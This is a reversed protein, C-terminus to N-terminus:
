PEILAKSQQLVNCVADLIVKLQGQMEKRREMGATWEKSAMQQITASDLVTRNPEEEAPKSPSHGVVPPDAVAASTNPQTQSM